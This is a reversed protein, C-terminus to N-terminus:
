LILSTKLLLWMVMSIVIIGILLRLDQREKLYQIAQTDNMQIFGPLDFDVEELLERKIEDVQKEEPVANIANGGFIKTLIARLVVGM